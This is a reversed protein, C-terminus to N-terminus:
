VPFLNTATPMTVWATCEYCYLHCCLWSIKHYLKYWLRMFSRGSVFSCGGGIKSGIEQIPDFNVQILVWRPTLKAVCGWVLHMDSTLFKTISWQLNSCALLNCWTWPSMTGNLTNHATLVRSQLQQHNQQVKSNKWNNAELWQLYSLPVREWFVQFLAQGMKPLSTLLKTGLRKFFRLPAGLIWQKSM